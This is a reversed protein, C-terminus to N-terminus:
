ESSTSFSTVILYASQSSLGFRALVDRPKKTWIPTTSSERTSKPPSRPPNHKETICLPTKPSTRLRVLRDVTYPARQTAAHYHRVQLEGLLGLALVLHGLVSLALAFGWRRAM